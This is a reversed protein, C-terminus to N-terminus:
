RRAAPESTAWGASAPASGASGAPVQAAAPGVPRTGRVRTDTERLNADMAATASRGGYWVDDFTRAARRLDTAVSPLVAGAEGAMEDATRAVRPDLVARHELDAVLARLRERVAEAYRGAAAHQDAWRRHEEASVTAELPGFGDAPRGGRALPGTKLRIAVVIGVLLAILILLGYAGGPAAHTVRNLARGVEAFLKDVLQTFLSPRQSQYIGKSLENAAAQRAGDRSIAALM